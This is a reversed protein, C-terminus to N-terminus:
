LMGYVYAISILSLRVFGGPAFGGGPRRFLRSQGVAIPLLILVGPQLFFIISLLMAGAAGSTMIDPLWLLPVIVLGPLTLCFLLVSQRWRVGCLLAVLCFVVGALLLSTPHFDLIWRIISKTQLPDLSYGIIMAVAFTVAAAGGVLALRLLVRRDRQPWWREDAAASIPTRVADRYFAVFELVFALVVGAALLLLIYEGRIRM